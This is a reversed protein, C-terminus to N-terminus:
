WACARRLRASRCLPASAPFPALAASRASVVVQFRAYGCLLTADDPFAALKQEYWAAELDEDSAGKPRASIPVAFRGSRICGSRWGLHRAECFAASSPSSRSGRDGTGAAQAVFVAGAVAWVAGPSPRMLQRVYLAGARRGV